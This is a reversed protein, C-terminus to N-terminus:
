LYPFALSSSYVYKDHSPEIHLRRLEYPLLKSLPNTGKILSVCIKYGCQKAMNAVHENFDSVQGNPYALAKISQDINREIINKSEELEYRLQVDDLSSLIPHTVSHSGFEIGHEHMEKCQAWNLPKSLNKISEDESSYGHAYRQEIEELASLRTENSVSKMKKVCDRYITNKNQLPDNPNSKFNIAGIEFLESKNSQVLYSLWDYWFPMNKGIYGATLFITAPIGLEKLVPFANYYNDDYGDDFTVIIPNDPLENSGELYDAFYKFTIPQYNDRIFNMQWRFESETADILSQDFPFKDVDTIELIRHYNM